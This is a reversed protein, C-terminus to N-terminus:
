PSLARGVGVGLLVVDEECDTHWVYWGFGELEVQLRGAEGEGACRIGFLGGVVELDLEESFDINLVGLCMVCGRIDLQHQSLLFQLFLVPRTQELVLCLDVIQARVKVLYTKGM